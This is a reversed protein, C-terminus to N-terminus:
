FEYFCHQQPRPQAFLSLRCRWVGSLLSLNSFWWLGKAAGSALVSQCPSMVAKYMSLSMFWYSPWPMCNLISFLNVATHNYQSILRTKQGSWIFSLVTHDVFYHLHKSQCQIWPKFLLYVYDLSRSYSSHLEYLKIIVKCLLLSKEM